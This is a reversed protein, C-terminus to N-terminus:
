SVVVRDGDNLRLRKGRWLPEDGTQRVDLGHRRQSLEVPYRLIVDAPGTV